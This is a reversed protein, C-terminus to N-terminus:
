ELRRQLLPLDLRQSPARNLAKSSVVNPAGAGQLLRHRDRQEALPNHAKAGEVKGAQGRQQAGVDALASQRRGRRLWEEDIM